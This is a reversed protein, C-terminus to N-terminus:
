SAQHHARHRRGFSTEEPLRMYTPLQHRFEAFFSLFFERTLQPKEGSKWDMSDSLYSFASPSWFIVLFRGLAPLGTPSFNPVRTAHHGM